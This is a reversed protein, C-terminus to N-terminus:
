FNTSYRSTLERKMLVTEQDIRQWIEQVTASGQSRVQSTMAADTQGKARLSAHFPDMGYTYPISGYYLDGTSIRYGGGSWVFGSSVPNNSKYINSSTRGVGKMTSEASQLMGAMQLGYDVVDSDVNLTPLQAIRRSYKDYWMAAQGFTKVKDRKPKTRLDDLMSTVSKYYQQTALLKAQGEPDAGASQTAHYADSLSRPLELISLVKRTGSDSLNGKVIFTNDVITPQWAEIDDIMAGHNRLAAILMDKGIDKIAEPNQGFDVRIAGITQEGVTVGLTIGEMSNFLKALGNVDLGSNSVIESNELTTKLQDPSMTDAVDFAMIIPTGVKTAYAFAKQLYPSMRSGGVPTVDTSRLWRSVQQRDAPLYTGLMDSKFQLVYRDDPLRAANRGQINDMKGGYRAAVGALDRDGALRVMGMEWVPQGFEIDQRAALLVETADPPLAFIGADYAAKAREPWRERDAVPARFMKQANILVMTNADAPVRLRMGSFPEQAQLPATSLLSLFGTCLVVALVRPIYAYSLRRM